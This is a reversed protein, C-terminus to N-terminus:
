FNILFLFFICRSPFSFDLKSLRYNIGGNLSENVPRFYLNSRQLAPFEGRPGEGPATSARPGTAPLDSRPVLIRAGGMRSQGGSCAARAILTITGTPAPADPPGGGQDQRPRASPVKSSLAWQAHPPQPSPGWLSGSLVETRVSRVTVHGVTYAPSHSPFSFPSPPPPARLPLPSESVLRLPNHPVTWPLLPPPGGPLSLM